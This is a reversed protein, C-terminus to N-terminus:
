DNIALTLKALLARQDAKSVADVNVAVAAGIAAVLPAASPQHDAVAAIDAVDAAAVAAAATAIAATCAARAPALLAAWPDHARRPVCRGEGQGRHRDVQM